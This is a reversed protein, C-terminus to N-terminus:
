FCSALRTASFAGFQNQGSLKQGETDLAIEDVIPWVIQYQRNQGTWSGAFFGMTMTGDTSISVIGGNDWRWLGVFSGPSGQLRQATSITGISDSADLRQGDDTLTINGTIDPWDVVYQNPKSSIWPAVGFGNSATGDANVVIKLGNSWQWCGVLSHEAGSSIGDKPIESITPLAVSGTKIRNMVMKYSRTTDLTALEELGSDTEFEYVVDNLQLTLSRNFAHWSFTAPLGVLASPDIWSFAVIGGERLELYGGNAFLETTESPIPINRNELVISIRWVTDVLANFPIEVPPDPQSIRSVAFVIAALAGIALGVSLLSRAAITRARASEPHTVEVTPKSSDVGDLFLATSATATDLSDFLETLPIELCDAINKATSEAVDPWEGSEMAILLAPPIQSRESLADISLSNLERCRQLAAADVSVRVITSLPRNGTRSSIGEAGDYRSQHEVLEQWPLLLACGGSQTYECYQVIVPRQHRGWQGAEKGAAIAVARSHLRKAGRELMSSSIAFIQATRLVLEPRVAYFDRDTVSASVKTSKSDKTM